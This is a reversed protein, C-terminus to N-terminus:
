LKVIAWKNWSLNLVKSPRGMLLKGPPSLVALWRQQFESAQKSNFHSHLSGSNSRPVLLTEQWGTLWDTLAEESSWGCILINRKEFPATTFPVTPIDSRIIPLSQSLLLVIDRYALLTWPPPHQQQVAASVPCVLRLLPSEPAIQRPFSGNEPHFHPCLM